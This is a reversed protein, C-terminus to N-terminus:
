SEISPNFCESYGLPREPAALFNLITEDALGPEVENLSLMMTAFAASCHALVAGPVKNLDRLKAVVRFDTGTAIANLL